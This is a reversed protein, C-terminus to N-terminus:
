LAEWEYRQHADCKIPRCAALGLAEAGVLDGYVREIPLGLAEAIEAARMTGHQRLLEIVTM